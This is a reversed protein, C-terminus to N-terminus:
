CGLPMDQVCTRGRKSGRPWQPTIAQALSGEFNLGDGITGRSQLVSGPSLREAVADVITASVDVNGDLVLALSFGSTEEDRGLHHVMAASQSDTGSTTLFIELRTLSLLDLAPADDRRVETGGPLYQATPIEEAGSEVDIPRKALAPTPKRVHSM